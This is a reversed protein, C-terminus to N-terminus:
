IKRLKNKKNPEDAERWHSPLFANSISRSSTVTAQGSKKSLRLGMSLFGWWPALLVVRAFCMDDRRRQWMSKSGARGGWYTASAACYFCSKICATESIHYLIAKRSVLQDVHDRRPHANGWLECRTSIAIRISRPGFSRNCNKQFRPTSCVAGNWGDWRGGCHATNHPSASLQFPRFGNRM